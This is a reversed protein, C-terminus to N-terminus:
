GIKDNILITCVMPDEAYPKLCDNIVSFPGDRNRKIDGHTFINNASTNGAVAWEEEKVTLRKFIIKPM